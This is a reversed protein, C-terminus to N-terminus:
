EEGMRKKLTTVSFAWELSLGTLSMISAKNPHNKGRAGDVEDM